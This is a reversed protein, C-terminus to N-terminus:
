LLLRFLMKVLNRVTFLPASKHILSHGSILLSFLRILFFKPVGKEDTKSHFSEGAASRCEGDAPYRRSRLYFKQFSKEFEGSANEATSPLNNGTSPLYGAEQHRNAVAEVVETLPKPPPNEM